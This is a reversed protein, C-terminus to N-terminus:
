HTCHREPVSQGEPAGKQLEDLLHTCHRVPVLQGAPVGYQSGAPSQTCHRVVAFQGALWAHPGFLVHWAVQVPLEFQGVPVTQSVVVCEHTCHTAL